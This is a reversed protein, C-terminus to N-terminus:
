DQETGPVLAWKNVYTKCKRGDALVQVNQIERDKAAQMAKAHVDGRKSGNTFQYLERDTLPGRKQLVAVIRQVQAAVPNDAIIPQHVERCRQQYAILDLVAQMIEADVAPRHDVFAFLAALRWVYTDLRANTKTRELANYWDDYLKEAEPTLDLVIEGLSQNTDNLEPLKAFLEALEERIPQLEQDTPKRVRARRSTKGKPVIFLRNLTGGGQMESANLMAEFNEDTTNSIFALHADELHVGGNRTSNRYSNKEFLTCFTPMLVSGEIGAKNEFTRFEDVALLIRSNGVWVEEKGKKEPHGFSKALGEASGVGENYHFWESPKHLQDSPREKELKQNATPFELRKNSWMEISRHIFMKALATSTSKRDWASEALKLVYLRPQTNLDGNEVRFRGSLIVSIIALFDAYFFEKCSEYREAYLEAFRAAVGFYANQPFIPFGNENLALTALRPQAPATKPCSAIWEATYDRKEPALAKTIQNVTVPKKKSGNGNSPKTAESKPEPSECLNASAASLDFAVDNKLAAPQQQVESATSIRTEM